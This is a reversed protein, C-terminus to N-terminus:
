SAPGRCTGEGARINETFFSWLGPYDNAAIFHTLHRMNRNTYWKM